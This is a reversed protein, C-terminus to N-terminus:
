GSLIPTVEGVIQSADAGVQPDDEDGAVGFICDGSVPNLLLAHEIQGFWKGQWRQSPFHPLHQLLLVPFVYLNSVTKRLPTQRLAVAAAFCRRSTRPM